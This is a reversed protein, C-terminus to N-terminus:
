MNLYGGKKGFVTLLRRDVSNILNQPDVPKVASAVAVWVTDSTTYQKREAYIVNSKVWFNEIPNLNPSKPAWTM